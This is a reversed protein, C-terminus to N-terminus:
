AKGHVVSNDSYYSLLLEIVFLEVTAV